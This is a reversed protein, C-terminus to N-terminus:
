RYLRERGATFKQKFDLLSKIIHLVENAKKPSTLLTVFNVGLDYLAEVQTWELDTGQPVVVIVPVQNALVNARMNVILRATNEKLINYNIICADYTTDQLKPIINTTITEVELADSGAAAFYKSILGTETADQSALLIKYYFNTVFM